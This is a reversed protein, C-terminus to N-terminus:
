FHIIERVIKKVEKVEKIEISRNIAEGLIVMGKNHAKLKQFFMNWYKEEWTKDIFFNDIFVIDIEKNVVERAINRLKKLFFKRAKEKWNDVFITDIPQPYLKLTDVYYCKCYHPFEKIFEMVGYKRANINDFKILLYKKGNRIIEKRLIDFVIKNYSAKEFGKIDSESFGAERLIEREYNFLKSEM